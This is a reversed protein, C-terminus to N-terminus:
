SAPLEALAVVCERVGHGEIATVAFRVGAYRVADGVRPPRELLALVLGSVTDVEEHQLEVGLHEGLEELRLTGQVRLRGAADRYFEQGTSEGEGMQGVMETSLDDIAVLGATGGHEDMVVVMQTRTRRMAELVTDLEATEPVFAVRRVDGRTLPRRVLLLRLLDKIHVVGAIHDLDEKYVPYRTHRAGRLIEQLEELSAALPVGIIRVRPVMVQGATLAEFDFLERLVQGSEPKLMGGEQSEQVILELEEPTYYSGASRQREIGMAKLTANGLRELAVVLPYFAARTWRMPRAIWLIAAEPRMLALSKPVMEGFVIHCYTLLALALATALTHAAIWRAAGLEELLPALGGALVHEGYMGLGLSALTIGLQATAVYRDQLRPESLTRHVWAALRHGQAARREIAQRPASLLAFEAAVFLGNLGVLGAIILLPVLIDM